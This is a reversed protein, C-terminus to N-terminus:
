VALIIIIIINKEYMYRSVILVYEVPLLGSIDQIVNYFQFTTPISNTFITLVNNFHLGIVWVVGIVTSFWSLLCIPNSLLQFQISQM